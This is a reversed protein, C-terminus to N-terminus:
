SCQYIFRSSGYLNDLLILKHDSTYMCLSVCVFFLILIFYYYFVNVFFSLFLFTVCFWILSFLLDVMLFIEALKHSLLGKLM